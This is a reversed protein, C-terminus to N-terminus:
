KSSIWTPTKRNIIRTGVPEYVSSDVSEHFIDDMRDGVSDTVRQDKTDETAEQNYKSTTVRRVARVDSTFRSTSTCKYM